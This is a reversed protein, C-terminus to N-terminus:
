DRIKRGKQNSKICTSLHPQFPQHPINFFVSGSMRFWGLSIQSESGKELAPGSFRQSAFNWTWGSCPQDGGQLLPEVATVYTISLINLFNVGVAGLEGQQDDYFRVKPSCKLFSGLSLQCFFLIVNDAERSSVNIEKVKHM